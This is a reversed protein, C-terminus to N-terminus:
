LTPLLHKNFCTIVTDVYIERQHTDLRRHEKREEAKM